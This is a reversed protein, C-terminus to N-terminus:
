CNIMNDINRNLKTADITFQESFSNLLLNQEIFWHISLASTDATTM